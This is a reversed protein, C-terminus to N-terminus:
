ATRTFCYPKVPSSSSEASRMTNSFNEASWDLHLEELRFPKSFYRHAVNLAEAAKLRDAHGSIVIRAAEPQLEIVKELFELGSMDPMSLDSVIVDYKERSLLVLADRGGCATHVEQQIGWYTHLQEYLDRTEPDDDVFLVRRM